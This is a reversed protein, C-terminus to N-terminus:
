SFALQDGARHIILNDILRTDGFYLALALLADGDIRSTPRLTSLDVIEVFELRALPAERRVLEHVAFQLKSADREGSAIQQKALLLARHLAGAQKREQENLYVNRSSLALGDEERVTPVVSIQIPFALDAVMREVIAAQQADKQGFYARDPEVINFLKAVITSVAKFHGPRSAGDLHLALMGPDVWVTQADAGRPYMEEADPLFLLDVATQKALSRDRELDRPYRDLDEGPAFQTPNVFISLVLLDNEFRAKRVLALHGEHLYGMTPVLGISSGRCREVRVRQRLERTTKIEDM